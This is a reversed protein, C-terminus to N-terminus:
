GQLRKRVIALRVLIAADTEDDAALKGAGSRSRPRLVAEARHWKLLNLAQEREYKDMRAGGGAADGDDNAARGMADLILREEVQAYGIAIAEEWDAAFAPDRLKRSYATSTQVGAAEAARQVCCTTALTELFAARKAATWGSATQRKEAM